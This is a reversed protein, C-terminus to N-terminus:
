YVSPLSRIPTLFALFVSFSFWCLSSSIHSRTSHTTHCATPCTQPIIVFINLYFFFLLLILKFKHFVSSISFLFISSLTQRVNCMCTQVTKQSLFFFALGPASSSCPSVFIILVSTMSVMFVHIIVKFLVSM